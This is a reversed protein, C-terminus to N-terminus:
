QAPKKTRFWAELTHYSIETILVSILGHSRM